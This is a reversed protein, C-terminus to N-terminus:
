FNHQTRVNICKDNWCKYQICKVMNKNDNTKRKVLIVVWRISSTRKTTTYM